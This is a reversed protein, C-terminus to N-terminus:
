LIQSYLKYAEEHKGEKFLLKDAKTFLEEM